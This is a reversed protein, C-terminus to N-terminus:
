STLVMSAILVPYTPSIFVMLMSGIFLILGILMARKRGWTDAVSGIFPSFLGVASRLTIGLTVAEETVGLGRAIFPLFPYVMPYGSNMITRITLFLGLQAYLQIGTLQKPNDTVASEILTM